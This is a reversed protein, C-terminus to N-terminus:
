PPPSRYACRVGTTADFEKGPDMRTRFTPRLADPVGLWSGGRISRTLAHEEWCRPSTVTAAQWCPSTLPQASDLLWENVNGALGVVKTVPTLDDGGPSATPSTTFLDKRFCSGGGLIIDSSRGWTAQDCRPAKDAAGWPYPVKSPRAAAAAVYEWEAETPLDGGAFNCFARAAYWSVCSVPLEERGRPEASWPCLARATPDGDEAGVTQSLPGETALPSKPDSHVFGRAIADRWRAISVEEVDMFFRPMRAVRPPWSSSDEFARFEPGGFVFVGGPICAIGKANPWTGECREETAGFSGQASTAKIPDRAHEIPIVATLEGGEKDICSRAEAFTAKGDKV